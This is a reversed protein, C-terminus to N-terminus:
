NQTVAFSFLTDASWTILLTASGDALKVISSSQLVAATGVPSLVPAPNTSNMFTGAPFTIQYQGTALRSSAAGSPLVQASGNSNIVGSAIKPSSPMLAYYGNVDIILETEHSAFMVITNNDGAVIIAANAVFGGNSANVTSTNPFPSGAPWASLYDMKNTPFVTFNLSYALASPPLVCKPHTAMPVFRLAFPALRPPGYAGTQGQESRTDLVRCPSVAVFALSSSDIFSLASRSDASSKSSKSSASEAAPLSFFGPAPWNKLPPDLSGPTQAFGVVSTFAIVLGRSWSCLHM